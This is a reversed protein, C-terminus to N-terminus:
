ICDILFDTLFLNKSCGCWKPQFVQLDAGLGLNMQIPSVKDSCQRTTKHEREQHLLCWPVILAFWVSGRSKLDLILIPQLVTGRPHVVQLVGSLQPSTLADWGEQCQLSSQDLFISSSISLTFLKFPPISIYCKALVPSPCSETLPSNHNSPCRLACLDQPYKSTRVHLSHSLYWHLVSKKVDLPWLFRPFKLLVNLQSAHKYFARKDKVATVKQSKPSIVVFSSLAKSSVKDLKWAPCQVRESSNVSRRWRCTRGWWAATHWLIVCWSNLRM